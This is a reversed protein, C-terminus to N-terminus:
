TVPEEKSIFDIESTASPDIDDSEKYRDSFTANAKDTLISMAHVIGAAFSRKDATCDPSSLMALGYHYLSFIEILVLEHLETDKNRKWIDSKLFERKELDKIANIQEILSVTM